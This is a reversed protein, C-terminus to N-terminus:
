NIEEVTFAIAVGLLEFGYGPYNEFRMRVARGSGNISRNITAVSYSYDFDESSEPGSPTYNVPLQYINDQTHWRNGSASETWEWKVRLKCKSQHAFDLVGGGTDEVEDETITFWATMNVAEKMRSPDDVIDDGTEGYASYTTGEGFEEWDQKNRNIMAAQLLTNDDLCAFLMDSFGTSDQQEIVYVDEGDVTVVEDDVTVVGQYTSTGRPPSLFAGLIKPTTSSVAFDLPYFANLRLDLVLVKNYYQTSVDNDSYLWYILRNYDDYAAKALSKTAAPISSKYFTQITNESINQASLTGLTPDAQVAYIGGRAWYVVASEALIGATSSIVGDSSLKRVRADTPRFGSEGGTIEWVGNTALVVLSNSYPIMQMIRGAGDIEVTGGDTALVDNIDPDTPDNEQHCKALSDYKEGVVVQSYFVTAAQSQETSGAYWARGAFGAVVRYRAPTSFALSLGEIGSAVARDYTPADVIFHGTPVSGIPDQLNKYLRLDFRGYASRSGGLYPDSKSPYSVGSDAILERAYQRRILKPIRKWKVTSLTQYQAFFEIPDGTTNGWLPSGEGSIDVEKSPWGRNWLDYKHADTLADPREDEITSSADSFDRVRLRVMYSGRELEAPQSEDRDYFSLIQNDRYVVYVPLVLCSGAVVLVNGVAAMQMPEDDYVGSSMDALSLQGVYNSFTSTGDVSFFLLMPGTGTYNTIGVVLLDASGGAASRWVYTTFPFWSSSFTSLDYGDQSTVDIGDRVAMTGDKKLVINLAATLANQPFSLKGFETNLGGAFNRYIRERRVRGM